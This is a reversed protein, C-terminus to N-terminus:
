ISTEAESAVPIVDFAVSIRSGICRTPTTRHPFYGPFLILRGPVPRIFNPAVLPPQSGLWESPIVLCGEDNNSEALKEPVAVYYVGAVSSYLHFHEKQADNPGLILAWAELKGLDPAVGKIIQAAIGVRSAVYREVAQKLAILLGSMAASSDSDLDEVQVGGALRLRPVNMLRIKQASEIDTVLAANFETVNLFGQPPAIREISVFADMDLLQRAEAMRGAGILGAIRALVVPMTLANRREQEDAFELQGCWDRKATLMTNLALAADV